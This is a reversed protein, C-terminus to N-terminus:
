PLHGLVFCDFTALATVSDGIMHDFEDTGVTALMEKTPFADLSVFFTKIVLGTPPSRM